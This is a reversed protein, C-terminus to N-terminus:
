AVSGLWITIHYHATVTTGSGGTGSQVIQLAFMTASADASARVKQSIPPFHFGLRARQAFAGTDTTTRQTSSETLQLTLTSSAEGWVSIGRILYNFTPSSGNFCQLNIASVLQVNSLNVAEDSSVQSQIVITKKLVRDISITPPDLPPTIVFPLVGSNRGPNQRKGKYNKKFGGKPPM